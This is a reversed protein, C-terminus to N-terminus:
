KRLRVVRNIHKEINTQLTREAELTKEKVARSFFHSPRIYGTYRRKGFFPIYNKRAKRRNYKQWRHATGEEFFRLLFSPNTKKNWGKSQQIHVRVGTADRYVKYRVWKELNDYELLTGSAGNRVNRLNGRGKKQIVRAAEALARKLAKRAETNSMKLSQFLENVRRTDVSIKLGEDM